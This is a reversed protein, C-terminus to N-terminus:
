KAASPFDVRHILKDIKIKALVKKYNTPVEEHCCPKHGDTPYLIYFTDPTIKIKCGNGSMWESDTEENFPVKTTLDQMDAYEVYETGSVLIQIDIYKRHVEFDAEDFKRTEGEQVLIFGNQIPYKGVPTNEKKVKEAFKIVEYIEPICRGYQGYREVRDLIM